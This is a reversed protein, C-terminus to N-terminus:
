WRRRRPARGVRPILGQGGAIRRHRRRDGCRELNSGRSAFWFCAALAAMVWVAHHAEVTAFHSQQLDLPVWAVLLLFLEGTRRGWVRHALFWGLIIALMSAVLSLARGGVLLSGLWRRASRPRGTAARVAQFHLSGYAYFGPDIFWGTARESVYGVQREDPHPSSSSDDSLGLGSPCPSSRARHAPPGLNPKAADGDLTASTSRWRRSAM